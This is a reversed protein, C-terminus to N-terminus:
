TRQAPEKKLEPHLYLRLEDEFYVPNNQFREQRPTIESDWKPLYGQLFALLLAAHVMLIVIIWRRVTRM